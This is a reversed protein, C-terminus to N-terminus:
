DQSQAAQRMASSIGANLQAKSKRFSDFDKVGNLNVTVSGGRRFNMESGSGEDPEGKSNIANGLAEMQDETFVGEGRKLIARFEDPHLGGHLRPANAFGGGMMAYGGSGGAIGGGHLVMGLGGMISGGQMQAAATMAANGLMQVSASTTMSTTGMQTTSAATQAQATVAQTLSDTALQDLGSSAKRLGDNALESASTAAQDLGGTLSNTVEPLQETLSTFSGATQNVQSSLSDLSGRLQGTIDGGAGFMDSGMGPGTFSGGGGMPNAMGPVSMTQPLQQFPSAGMGGTFSSTMGQYNGPLNLGYNPDIPSMGPATGHYHMANGAGFVQGSSQAQKVVSDGWSGPKINNWSSYKPNLYNLNGGVSSELGQARAVLYDDVLKDVRKNPMPLNDVSGVAGKNGSIASFQHKANVVDTISDGWKGSMKRNLITDIVGKGQADFLDQSKFNVVESQVTKKLDLIEKSTLDMSKSFSKSAQDLGPMADWPSATQPAMPIKTIDDMRTGLKDVSPGLKEISGATMDGIRAAEKAVLDMKTAFADGTMTIGNGLDVLGSSAESASKTLPDIGKRLLDQVPKGGFLSDTAQKSMLSGPGGMSTNGFLNGAGGAGNGGTLLDTLSGPQGLDNLIYTYAPNAFTGVEFADAVTPMASSSLNGTIGQMMNGIMDKLPDTIVMKYTTRFVDELIANAFNKFNFEGTKLFDVISDELTKFANDIVDAMKQFEGILGQRDQLIKFLNLEKQAREDQLSGYQQALAYEKEAIALMRSRTKESYFMFDLSRQQAAVEGQMSKMAEAHQKTFDLEVLQRAAALRQNWLATGKGIGENMMKIQENAVAMIVAQERASKGAAETAIQALRVQDEVEKLDNLWKNGFDVANIERVLALMRNWEDSGEAIGANLMEQMKAAVAAAEAQEYASSTITSSAARSLDLQDKLAKEMDAVTKAFDAAEAAKTVKEIEDALGDLGLTKLELLAEKYNSATIIGSAWLQNLVRQQTQLRRKEAGSARTIAIDMETQITSKEMENIFRKISNSGLETETRLRRMYAEAQEATKGSQMLVEKFMDWNETLANLKVTSEEQERAVTMYEASMKELLAGLEELRDAHKKTDEAAKISVTGYKELHKNAADIDGARLAILAKGLDAADIDTSGKNILDILGRLKDNLAEVKDIPASTNQLTEYLRVVQAQMHGTSNSAYGFLGALYGLGVGAEKFIGQYIKLDNALGRFASALLDVLGIANAFDQSANVLENTFAGWAGTLTKTDAEAAKRVSETKQLVMNVAEQKRGGMELLEIRRKEAANFRIGYQTLTNLAESPAQLVQAFNRFTSDVTGRGLLALGQATKLSKELLEENMGGITLFGAAADRVNSQVAGTDAAVSRVVKDVSAATILASNGTAKLTADIRSM